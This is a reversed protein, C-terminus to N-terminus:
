PKFPENHFLLLIAKLGTLYARGKPIVSSAHLLKGYLKQVELLVHVHSTKWAILARHYKECKADLITVTRSELNWLFGTFPFEHSFPIDKETQWPIGLQSTVFDVDTLNSTYRVDEPSRPSRTSLDRVSFCM